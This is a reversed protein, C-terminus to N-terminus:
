EGINFKDKKRQLYVTANQYMLEYLMRIDNMGGIRYDAANRNKYYYINAQTNCYQQILKQIQIIISPPGCFSILGGNGKRQTYSGDADFYGRIFHPILEQSLNPITRNVKPNCVGYQLLDNCMQESIISLQCFQNGNIFGSHNTYVGLKHESNLHCKFLELHEKDQIGIKIVFNTNNKSIAGDGWVYGLWYAQAESTINHFFDYNCQKQKYANNDRIPINHSLLVKTITGRSKKCLTAIQSLSYNQQYLQIVKSDTVIM